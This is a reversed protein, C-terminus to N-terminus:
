KINKARDEFTFTKEQEEKTMSNILAFLKNFNDEGNQILQEKTAPRAM